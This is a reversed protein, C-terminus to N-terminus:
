SLGSTCRGRGLAGTDPSTARDIHITLGNSSSRERSRRVPAESGFCVNSRRVM